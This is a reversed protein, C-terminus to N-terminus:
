MEKLIIRFYCDFNTKFCTPSSFCNVKCKCTGARSKPFNQICEENPLCNDIGVNCGNLAFANNDDMILDKYMDELKQPNTLVSLM